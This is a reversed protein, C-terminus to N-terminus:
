AFIHGGHRTSIRTTVGSGSHKSFQPVIAQLLLGRRREALSVAVVSPVRQLPPPLGVAVVDEHDGLRLTMTSACHNCLWYYEIRKPKNTRLTPDTELRFLKGQQLSRFSASCSPNSCKDLM